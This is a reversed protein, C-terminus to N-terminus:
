LSASKGRSACLCKGLTRPCRHEFEMPYCERSVWRFVSESGVQGMEGECSAKGMKSSSTHEEGM